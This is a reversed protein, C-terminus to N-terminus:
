GYQISLQTELTDADDFIPESHKQLSELYVQIADKVMEKAEEIDRGYTICGPLAPVTVTFGGEPEPKLIVRYSLVRV